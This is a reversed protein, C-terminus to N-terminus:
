SRLGSPYGPGLSATGMGGTQLFYGCKCCKLGTPGSYCISQNPGVDPVSVCLCHQCGYFQPRNPCRPNDCICPLM